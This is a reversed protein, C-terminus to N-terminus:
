EFTHTLSPLRHHSKTSNDDIEQAKLMIMGMLADAVKDMTSKARYVM